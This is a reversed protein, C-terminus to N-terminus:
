CTINNNVARDCLPGMIHLCIATERYFAICERMRPLKWAEEESILIERFLFQIKSYQHTVWVGTTSVSLLVLHMWYKRDILESYLILTSFINWWSLSIKELFFNLNNELHRKLKHDTLPVAELSLNGMLVMKGCNESMYHERQPPFEQLVLSM